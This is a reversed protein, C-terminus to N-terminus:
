SATVNGESGIPAKPRWDIRRTKKALFWRPNRANLKLSYWRGLVWASGGLGGYRRQVEVSEEHMRALNTTLNAGHLRFRGLVDPVVAPQSVRLARAYLDYDACNKLSTDFPGLREAFGRRMWTAVSPIPCWGISVVQRLTPRVPVMRAIPRGEPDIYEIAGTLWETAAEREFATTILRLAAPAIEDDANIYGVVDTDLAALGRNVAEYMGGDKAVIVDSPYRRAVEVTRDSSAGDVVVHRVRVGADAGRWISALCHDLYREANLTPTVIGVSISTM